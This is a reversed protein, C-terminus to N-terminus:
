AAATHSAAGKRAEKEKLARYQVPTMGTWRRFARYFASLESFGLRKPISKVPVDAEAVLYLALNKRSEDVLGSLTLGEACLKRRLSRPTIGLRNSIARFTNESPAFNHERHLIARIRAHLPSSRDDARLMRDLKLELWERLQQDVFPRPISLAAPDFHIVAANANFEVPCGFLADYEAAYAPAPYPLQVRVPTAKEGIFERASTAIM